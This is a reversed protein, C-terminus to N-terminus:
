SREWVLLRSTGSGANPFPPSLSLAPTGLAATGLTPAGQCVALKQWPGLRPLGQAQGRARAAVVRILMASLLKTGLARQNIGGGPGSETPETINYETRCPRLAPSALAAAGLTVKGGADGRRTDPLLGVDLCLVLLDWGFGDLIHKLLRFERSQFPVTNTGADGPLLEQPQSQQYNLQVPSM